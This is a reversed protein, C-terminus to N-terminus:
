CSSKWEPSTPSACSRPPSSPHRPPPPSCISMEGMDKLSRFTPVAMIQYNFCLAECNKSMLNWGEDVQTAHQAITRAENDIKGKLHPALPELFAVKEAYKFAPLLLGVRVADNLDNIVAAPLGAKKIDAKDADSLMQWNYATFVKANILLKKMSPVHDTPVEPVDKYIHALVEGISKKPSFPPLKDPPISSYTRSAFPLLGHKLLSRSRIMNQQPQLFFFFINYWFYSIDFIDSAYDNNNRQQVLCLETDAEHRINEQFKKLEKKASM